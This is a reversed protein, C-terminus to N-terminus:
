GLVVYLHGLGALVLVVGALRVLRDVHKGVRDLGVDHGVAVALTTGVMLVAITGGYAGLVAVSELPPLSLSQVVLGLFLPLVCATAAFAYLGGFLVFGWVTTPREPLGVHMTGPGGVLIAIGFAVLAVGVLPEVIPLLREITGAAFFAVVALVGFTGLVGGGAAGGRIAAESLPVTTNGSAATYFAVYGPLLAYACPAFFTAAGAGLAFAITGLLELSM